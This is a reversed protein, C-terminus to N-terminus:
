AVRVSHCEGGVPPNGCERWQEDRVAPPYACTGGGCFGGGRPPPPLFIPFNASFEVLCFFAVRACTPFSLSSDPMPALTLFARRRRNEYPTYRHTM